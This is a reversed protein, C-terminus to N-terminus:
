SLSENAYAHLGVTVSDWHRAAVVRQRPQRVLTHHRRIARRSMKCRRAIETALPAYRVNVPLRRDRFVVSTVWQLCLGEESVRLNTENGGSRDGGIRYGAKAISM